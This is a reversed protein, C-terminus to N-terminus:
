EADKAVIDDDKTEIVISSEKKTEKKSVKPEVKPEASGKRGELAALRKEVDRKFTDFEAQLRLIYNM